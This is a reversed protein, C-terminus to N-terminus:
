VNEEEKEVREVQRGVLRVYGSDYARRITAWGLSYYLLGLLAIAYGVMQLSTIQTGWIVVSCVILLINKPVSVLTM